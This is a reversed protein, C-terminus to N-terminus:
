GVDNAGQPEPSEHIPLEAPRLPVRNITFRRQQLVPLHRRVDNLVSRRVTATVLGQETGLQAVCVGLPDIVSSLGIRTPGNKGAAVVYCTNELARAKTMLEWHAEKLPGSVWATPLALIDAGQEVLLRAVEPFRVDYCTMMGVKFGKLDFTELPGDGFRLRDSERCAFADYLHLKRYTSIVRGGRLAVLTNSPRLDYPDDISEATGVIVTLNNSETAEALGRIFPGDLPQAGSVPGTRDAPTGLAGEPLVLLDAGENLSEQVFGLCTALNPEWAEVGAFQGAAVKITEGM